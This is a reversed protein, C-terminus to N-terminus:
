NCTKPVYGVISVAADLCTDNKPLVLSAIRNKEDEISKNICDKLISELMEDKAYFNWQEKYKLNDKYCCKLLDSTFKSQSCSKHLYKALCHAYKIQLHVVGSDVTHDTIIDPTQVLPRLYNKSMGTHDNEKAQIGDMKLDDLVRIELVGTRKDYKVAKTPSQTDNGANLNANVFRISTINVLDYSGDLVVNADLERNRRKKTADRQAKNVMRTFIAKERKKDNKRPQIGTEPRSELAQPENTELWHEVRGIVKIIGNDECSNNKVCTLYHMITSRQEPTQQNMNEWVAKEARTINQGNGHCFTLIGVLLFLIAGLIIHLSKM